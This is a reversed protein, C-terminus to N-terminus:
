PLTPIATSCSPSVSTLLVVNQWTISLTVFGVGGGRVHVPLRELAPVAVRYPQVAPAPRSYAKSLFQDANASYSWRPNRDCRTLKVTGPDAPVTAPVRRM